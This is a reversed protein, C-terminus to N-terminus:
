NTNFIGTKVGVSSDSLIFLASKLIPSGFFFRHADSTVISIYPRIILLVFNIIRGILVTEPRFPLVYMRFDSLQEFIQLNAEISALKEASFTYM